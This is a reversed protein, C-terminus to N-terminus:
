STLFAAMEEPDSFKQIKGQELEQKGQALASEAEDSLEPIHEIVEVHDEFDRVAYPTGNLIEQLEQVSLSIHGHQKPLTKTM